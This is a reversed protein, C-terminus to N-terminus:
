IRVQTLTQQAFLEEPSVKRHCVGQAFAFRLFADLTRQNAEIGYPWFDEGFLDRILNVHSGLCPLPVHAATIEKLRDLSRRKAEEFAKMLNMAIWPNKHLLETKMVLAHMIPFIGTAKYYALEEVQADPFLRHIGFGFHQPARASLVADLEGALLMGDLSKSPESRYNVGAPLKLEVEEKRGPDNVGAQVWEVSDLPVSYDEALMGRVYITATQAWEPIGIRQGKLQRPDTVTSGQPLYIMSHRFVRSVFVPLATLSTDGQSVMSAYRGMSMECIDWERYHTFRHFVEEATLMSPFLDVGEIPVRGSIVDRTQDYDGIAISLPIRSM